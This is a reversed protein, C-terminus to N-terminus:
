LTYIIRTVAKALKGVASTHALRADEATREPQGKDINETLQLIVSALLYKGSESENKKEKGRQDVPHDELTQYPDSLSLKTREDSLLELALNSSIGTCYKEYFLYSEICIDSLQFKRYEAIDTYGM